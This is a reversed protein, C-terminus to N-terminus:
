RNVVATFSIEVLQQPFALRTIAAITSACEPEDTGTIDWLEASTKHLDFGTTNWFGASM